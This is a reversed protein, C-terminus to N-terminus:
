VIRCIGDVEVLTSGMSKKFVKAFYKQNSYGCRNAVESLSYRNERIYGVAKQIRYETLYRIYTKGTTQKFLHSLYFPSIGVEEAVIDLSINRMFNGEIYDRARRVGDHVAPQNEHSLIEHIDRFLKRFVELVEAESGATDLQSFFVRNGLGAPYPSDEDPLLQRRLEFLISLVRDKVNDICEFSGFHSRFWEKEYKREPWGARMLGRSISIPDFLDRPSNTDSYHHIGLEPGAKDLASLSEMYSRPLHSIEGVSSGVGIMVSIGFEMNLYNRIREAQEIAWLRRRFENDSDDSHFLFIPIKRNVVMGAFGSRGNDLLLTIRELIGARHILESPQAGLFFSDPLRITLILGGHFSHGMSSLLTKFQAPELDGSVIVAIMDSRVIPLLEKITKKLKEEEHVKRIDDEIEKILKKLLEVLDRRRVPKLLFADAALNVADQAYQFKGHATHIISKTVLGKRRVMDLSELGNLGPMDVDLIVIDSPKEEMQRIFDVGNSSERIDTIDPLETEVLHRIGSREISEDDVIM